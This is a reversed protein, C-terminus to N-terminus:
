EDDEEELKEVLAKVAEQIELPSINDSAIRYGDKCPKVLLVMNLVKVIEEKTVGM